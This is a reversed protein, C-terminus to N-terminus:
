IAWPALKAVAIVLEQSIDLAQQHLEIAQEYQGL